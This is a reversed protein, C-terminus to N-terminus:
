FLVKRGLSNCVLFHSPSPAFPKQVWFAFTEWSDRARRAVRQQVPAVGPHVPRRVVKLPKGTKPGEGLREPKCSSIGFYVDCQKM